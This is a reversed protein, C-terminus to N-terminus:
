RISMPQPTTTVWSGMEFTTAPFLVHSKRTRALEKDRTPCFSSSVTKASRVGVATGFTNRILKGPLNPLGNKLETHKNFWDNAVGVTNRNYEYLSGHLKNTGSKTVLVVQAGSSRGADANANSTTVRFEQLSDLTSRLAGTFAYGRTQDNNDIGDLVVNTQDSRAGSVSGGRSDLDQDVGKGVYTVGPQLSLIEVPDRGEFPLAAIQATAFANGLTADQTNVQVRETTVDVTTKEGQVNLTVNVTAPLNVMLRLNTERTTAFGSKGDTKTSKSFGTNVDSITVIAGPVVATQPDTVTGRLSTTSSQSWSLVAILLVVGVLLVIRQQSRNM